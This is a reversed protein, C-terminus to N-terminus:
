ETFVKVYKNAVHTYGCYDNLRNVKNIVKSDTRIERVGLSQVAGEMFQWFRLAMFGKRYEPLVFYTDETAYLTGTHMSEGLYMRINGVLDGDDTRTTFQLMKGRREMELMYDYNPKLGFGLRHVETEKFHEKHLLHMDDLINRLREAQFTFGKYEKVGFKAPDHSYDDMDFAGVEIASAVEPTLVKGLNAAIAARLKDHSLSAM